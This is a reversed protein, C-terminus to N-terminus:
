VIGMKQIRVDFQGYFDQGDEYPTLYFQQLIFLNLNKKANEDKMGILKQEVAKRFAHWRLLFQENKKQQPVDLWKGVKVKTRGPSQCADKQLFYRIGNEEYIRGLPFVRCLGPRFPHIGCRGEENLFPCKEEQGEMRLHPLIVGDVVGLEVTDDLLQQASKGTARCLQWMDLPDLVISDGMGECCAHCGACDNCAARVMDNVGYIKGDSIENLERLM